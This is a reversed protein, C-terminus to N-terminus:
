GSLQIQPVSGVLNGMPEVPMRRSIFGGEYLSGRVKKLTAM